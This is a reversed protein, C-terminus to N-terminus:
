DLVYQMQGHTLNHAYNAAADPSNTSYLYNGYIGTLQEKSLDWVPLLNEDLIPQTGRFSQMILPEKGKSMELIRAYNKPDHFAM